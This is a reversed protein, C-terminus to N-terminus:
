LKWRLWGVMVIVLVCFGAPILFGQGIGLNNSAVGVAWPGVAGGLGGAAFLLGLIVGTNEPHGDSVAAVMTPFIISLFLGSLPLFLVLIPPGLLGLLLCILSAIAASFISQLYGIRDVVVSGVLRGAMLCAFFLSLYLSAQPLSFGRADELYAVLWAGIGLETSVYFFIALYYGLMTPRFGSRRAETWNFGGGTEKVPRAPSPTLLFFLGLVGALPLVSQMAQRWSIGASLLASAYMPVLLSGVGHFVALLNMYRGRNRQHLEAILGNGGVEIAGMGLGFVLMAGFLLGYSNALSAGALGMLTFVGALMLVVRNGAMDAVPGTILTAIVFGIYAGFLIGGGQSYNLDLDRLLSPLIPGKLNDVFGFVFFSLFSGGTLVWLLRNSTPASVSSKVTTM